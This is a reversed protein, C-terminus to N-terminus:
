ESLAESAGSHGKMSWALPLRGTSELSRDPSARPWTDMM